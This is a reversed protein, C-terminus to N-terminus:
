FNYGLFTSHHNYNGPGPSFKKSTKQGLISCKNISKSINSRFNSLPYKGTGTFMSVSRNVDYTTPDPRINWESHGYSYNIREEKYNGFHSIPSNKINSLIISGNYKTDCKDTEYNGPGPTCSSKYGNFFTLKNISYKKSNGGLGIFSRLNYSGPCPSIKNTILQYPLKCDDRAAGFSFAPSRNKRIDGKHELYIDQCSNSKLLRFHNTKQNVPSSLEYNRKLKPFNLNNIDNLIEKKKSPFYLFPFPTFDWSNYSDNSNTKETSKSIINIKKPSIRKKEFIISKKQEKSKITEPIIKDFKEM